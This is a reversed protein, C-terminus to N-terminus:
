NGEKQIFEALMKIADQRNANSIWGLTGGEGFTFYLLAFGWGEPLVAEIGRALGNTAEDDLPAIPVRYNSSKRSKKASKEGIKKIIDMLAENQKALKLGLEAAKKLEREATKAREEWEASGEEVPAPLEGIAVMEGAKASHLAFYRSPTGPPAPVVSDGIFDERVGIVQGALRHDAKYRPDPNDARYEAHGPLYPMGGLALIANQLGDGEADHGQVFNDELEDLAKAMRERLDRIATAARRALPEAIDLEGAVGLISAAEAGTLARAAEADLEGLLADIDNTKM